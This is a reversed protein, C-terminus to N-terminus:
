ADSPTGKELCVDFNHLELKILIGLEYLFNKGHPPPHLNFKHEM